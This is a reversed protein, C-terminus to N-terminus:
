FSDYRPDYSKLLLTHHSHLIHLRHERMSPLLCLGINGESVQGDSPHFCMSEDIRSDVPGFKISINIWLPTSKQLLKLAKEPLLCCLAELDETLAEQLGNTKEFVGPEFNCTFGCLDRKAYFKNSTDTVNNKGREDNTKKCIIRAQFEDRKNKTLSIKHRFNQLTPRYVFM